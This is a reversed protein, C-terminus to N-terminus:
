KTYSVAIQKIDSSETKNKFFNGKKPSSSPDKLIASSAPVLSWINTYRIYFSYVMINAYKIYFHGCNLM